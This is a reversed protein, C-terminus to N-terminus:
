NQGREKINLEKLVGDLQIKLREMLHFLIIDLLELLLNLQLVIFQPM